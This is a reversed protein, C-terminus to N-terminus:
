GKSSFVIVSSVFHSHLLGNYTANEMEVNGPVQCLLNLGDISGFVGDLLPHRMSVYSSLKFFEHGHPWAIRAGPM